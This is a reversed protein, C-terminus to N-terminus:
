WEFLIWAPIEPPALEYGTTELHNDGDTDVFYYPLGVRPIVKVMYLQGNARYEEVIRDEIRMITVEPEISEGDALPEPITPPKALENDAFAVNASMLLLCFCVVNIKTFM